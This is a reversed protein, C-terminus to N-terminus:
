GTPQAKRASAGASPRESNKVSVEIYEADRRSIEGACWEVARVVDRYAPDSLIELAKDASYEVDFGRWGHVVHESYLKGYIAASEDAPVTRGQYKRAVRQIVLDRAAQYGPAHLSSVNFEVGPWDPYAIWDGSEERALDAKISSLKLVM